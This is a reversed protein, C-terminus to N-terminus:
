EIIVEIVVIDDNDNAAIGYWPMAVLNFDERWVMTVSGGNAALEIGRNDAVRQDPALYVEDASLNLIVLSLRRPNANLVQTVTSNVEDTIPNIRYSTKVAWERALLESLSGVYEINNIM